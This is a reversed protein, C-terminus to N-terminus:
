KDTAYQSAPHHLTVEYREGPQEVAIHLNNGYRECSLFRLGKFACYAAAWAEDNEKISSDAVTPEKLTDDTEVLAYPDVRRRPGDVRQLRAVRSQGLAAHTRIRAARSATRRCVLGRSNHNGHPARNLDAAV